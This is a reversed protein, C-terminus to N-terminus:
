LNLITYLMEEEDIVNKTSRDASVEIGGSKVDVLEIKRPTKAFWYNTQIKKGIDEATLLGYGLPYYETSGDTFDSKLFYQEPLDTIEWWFEYQGNESRSDLFTIQDNVVRSTQGPLSSIESVLALNQPANKQFLALNDKIKILGFGSLIKALNLRSARYQKQYFPNSGYQLKYTLLDNFDILLYKTDQPLSYNETLFQQQGLFVYNFSYINSRSSLPALFEYTAAIPADQPIMKVFESKNLAQASILGNQWILKLSGIIPGLTLSSYILGAILILLALNKNKKILTIIKGNKKNEIISKLSYIAAIFVAPLLPSSYHTQL